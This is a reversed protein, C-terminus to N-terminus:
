QMHRTHTHMKLNTCTRICNRKKKAFLRLTCVSYSVSDYLCLPLSYSIPFFFTLFVRSYLTGLLFNVIQLTTLSTATCIMARNYWFTIERHQFAFVQINKASGHKHPTYTLTDTSKDASTYAFSIIVIWKANDFRYLLMTELTIKYNAHQSANSASM